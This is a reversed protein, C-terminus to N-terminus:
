QLPDIVSLSGFVSCILVLFFLLWCALFGVVSVIFQSGLAMVLRISSVKHM